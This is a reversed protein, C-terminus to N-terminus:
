RAIRLRPVTHPLKAWASGEASSGATARATPASIITCPGAPCCVTAAPAKKSPYRDDASPPSSNSTPTRKGAHAGRAPHDTSSTLLRCPSKANTPSTVVSSISSAPNSCRGANDNKPTALVGTRTAAASCNSSPLTGPGASKASAAFTTDPANCGGASSWADDSYLACTAPTSVRRPSASAAARAVSRAPPQHPLDGEPDVTPVLARCDLTARGQGFQKAVVEPEGARMETALVTHTTRARHRDVTLGDPGAQHQRHLRLSRDDLGDLREAVSIAKPGDLLRHPLAVRELAREACRSEEHRNPAQQRVVRRRRRRLDFFLKGAVQTTARSVCRDELTDGFGHGLQGGGRSTRVIRSCIM